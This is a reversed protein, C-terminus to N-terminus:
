LYLYILTVYIIYTSLDKINKSYRIKKKALLIM